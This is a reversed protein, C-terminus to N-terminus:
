RQEKNPIVMSRQIMINGKIDMPVESEVGEENEAQVLNLDPKQVQNPEKM